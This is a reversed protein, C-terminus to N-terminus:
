LLKEGVIRTSVTRLPKAGIDAPDINTGIAVDFSGESGGKSTDRPLVTVDIRAPDRGGSRSTKIGPLLPLGIEVGPGHSSPLAWRTKIAFSILAGRSAAAFVTLPRDALAVLLGRKVADWARPDGDCRVVRVDVVHGQGDVTAEFIVDGDVPSPQQV